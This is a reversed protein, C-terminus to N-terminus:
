KKYGIIKFTGSYWMEIGYYWCHKNQGKGGANHGDMENDFELVIEEDDIYIVTAPNDITADQYNNKIQFVRMGLVPMLEKSNFKTMMKDKWTM